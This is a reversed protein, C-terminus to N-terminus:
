RKKHPATKATTLFQTLMGAAALAAGAIICWYSHDTFFAKLTPALSSVTLSAPNGLLLFGCCLATLMGGTFATSIVILTRRHIVAMVGMVIACVVMFISTLLSFPNWGFLVCVTSVASAGFISGLMFIGAVYVYYLLLGTAAGIVVSLIITPFTSMVPALLIYATVTGVLFGFAMILKRLYRYGFFCFLIGLAIALICLIVAIVM